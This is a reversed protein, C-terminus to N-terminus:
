RGRKWWINSGKCTRARWNHRTLGHCVGKAKTACPNTCKRHWRRKVAKHVNITRDRLVLAVSAACRRRPSKDVRLRRKSM